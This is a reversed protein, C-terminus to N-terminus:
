RRQSGPTERGDIRRGIPGAQSDMSVAFERQGLSDGGRVRVQKGELEGRGGEAGSFPLYKTM